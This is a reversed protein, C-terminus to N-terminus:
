DEFDIVIATIDAVQHPGVGLWGVLWLFREKLISTAEQIARKDNTKMKLDEFARL